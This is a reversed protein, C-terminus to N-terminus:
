CEPDERRSQISEKHESVHSESSLLHDRSVLKRRSLSAKQWRLNAIGATGSSVIPLEHFVGKLNQKPKASVFGQCARGFSIALPFVDACTKAASM